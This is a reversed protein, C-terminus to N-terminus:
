RCFTTLSKEDLDSCEERQAADRPQDSPKCCKYLYWSKSWWAVSSRLQTLLNWFQVHPRPSNDQHVHVHHVGVCQLLITWKMKTLSIKIKSLLRHLAQLSLIVCVIGGYIYTAISYDLNSIGKRGYNIWLLWTTSWLWDETTMRGSLQLQWQGRCCVSTAQGSHRQQKGVVEDWGGNDM